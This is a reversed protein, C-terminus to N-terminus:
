IGYRGRLANFNQQVETATLARNYIQTNSIQGTFERGTVAVCSAVRFNRNSLYHVNANGAAAPTFIQSGNLYGILTTGSKSYVINQWTSTTVQIGKGAGFGGVPQFQTGDYWAFYYYRNTTADESQLVWGNSGAHDFDVMSILGADQVGPNVWVSVTFNQNQFTTPNTVSAYDDVGDFVLSGGNASSYTPAQTGAGFTGNNGNGSLDTWTTGSGPYSSRNGADLNLILGNTVIPGDILGNIDVTVRFINKNNGTLSRLNDETIPSDYYKFNKIHGNIYSSNNLRDFGLSVRNLGSTSQSNINQLPSSSSSMILVRNTNYYLANKTTTNATPNISFSNTGNDAVLTTGMTPRAEIFFTGSTSLSQNLILQDPLRTVTSGSTPIYSTPFSGTGVEVQWGWVYIGDTTSGTGLGSGQDGTSTNLGFIRVNNTVYSQTSGTRNAFGAVLRYWGNVLKESYGISLNNFTVEGTDLNFVVRTFGSAGGSINLSIHTYKSNPVRKVFISSFIYSNNPVSVSSLNADKATWQGSAGYILDATTNGDPATIVNASVNTTQGGVDGWSSANESNIRNNTRSEEIFLGKFEKTIPDYDFRPQNANATKIFGDPGVYTGASNRTFTYEPSISKSNVFDISTSPFYLPYDLDATTTDLYSYNSM